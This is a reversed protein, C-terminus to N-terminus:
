ARRYQVLPRVADHFRDVLRDYTLETTVFEYANAAVRNRFGADAFKRMAEDADTFDHRLPIYHQDAVFMGDYHGEFLVQATRTGAAEVQRGSLIRLPVSPHPPPFFRAKVDEFTAGPNADCYNNVADRTRDDLDFYDGGAESGLQGKCQNLFAAWGKEDLRDRHNLSIDVRLGYKQANATFFEAIEARERHGLYLPADAARYGLDIPRTGPDTAPFFVAPDLGTNPIGAVLCRLRQRYLEHVENSLSQSILLSIGIRDCFRMKDPMLKYENGIFFAKPAPRTRLQDALRHPLLQLNSFVSHLIVILDGSFTRAAWELRLREPIGTAAVNIATCDFAPHAVFHRPWGRQYSFTANDANSAYLLLTRLKRM